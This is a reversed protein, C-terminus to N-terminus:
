VVTAGGRRAKHKLGLAVSAQHVSVQRDTLARQHTGANFRGAVHDALQVLGIANGAPDAILVAQGITTWDQASQADEPYFKQILGKYEDREAASIPLDSPGWLVRGGASTAESVAAKLDPVAYYAIVTEQASHKPGITLDIGNEDITAHYTVQQDTLAEAFTLGFFTEYFKAVAEPQGAAVSLLVLKKSLIM